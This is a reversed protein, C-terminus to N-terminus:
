RVLEDVTRGFLEECFDDLEIIRFRRGWQQAFVPDRWASSINRSWGYLEINWGFALVREINKKFGDSYEAHAADGTALVITGGSPKDMASQLLKLHLVEDVGQEGQKMPGVFFDDGSTDSTASENTRGRRKVPSSPKPVRQMINMEYELQRAETMYSPRKSHGGVSGAVIKKETKRGRTLIADFNEFSFPPSPKARMNLPFGHSSKISDYFGIIINSLDIFVHVPGSAGLATELTNRLKADEDKLSQLKHDLYRAKGAKTTWYFPSIETPGARFSVDYCPAEPHVQLKARPFSSPPKIVNYTVYPTTSVHAVDAPTQFYNPAASASLHSNKNPVYPAGPSTSHLYNFLATGLGPTSPPQAVYAVKPTAIQPSDATSCTSVPSEVALSRSSASSTDSGHYSSLTAPSPSKGPAQSQSATQTEAAAVKATNSKALIDEVNKTVKIKFAQSDFKINDVTIGSDEARLSASATPASKPKSAQLSVKKWPMVPAKGANIVHYEIKNALTSATADVGVGTQRSNDFKAAADPGKRGGESLIKHAQQSSKIFNPHQTMGFVDPDMSKFFSEWRAMESELDEEITELKVSGNPGDKLRFEGPKTSFLTKKDLNSLKSLPYKRPPETLTSFTDVWKGLLRFDSGLRRGDPESRGFYSVSM